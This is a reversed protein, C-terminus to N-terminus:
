RITAWEKVIKIVAEPNETSFAIEKYRGKKLSLVVQPRGYVGYVLRSKGKVEIPYIGSGGYVSAFSKDVHYCGEINEWPVTYKLIGYSVTVCSSTITITLRVFIVTIGFFLLFIVLYFLTPSLSVAAYFMIGTLLALMGALWLSLIKEEYIYNLRM